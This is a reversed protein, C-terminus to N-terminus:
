SPFFLGKPDVHVDAILNALDQTPEADTYLHWHERSDSWYVTWAQNKPDYRFQAAARSQVKPVAAAM